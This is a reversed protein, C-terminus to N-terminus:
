HNPATEAVIKLTTANFFEICSALKPMSEFWDYAYELGIMTPKIGQRHLERLFEESKGTGTGWPVDHGKGGAEHLDHMQVTNIRDKLLRVADVPDIGNRLWYGLDPAAGLISAWLAHSALLTPTNKKM